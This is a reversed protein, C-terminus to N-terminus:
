CAPRYTLEAVGSGSTWSGALTLKVGAGRRMEMLRRPGAAMIPTTLV